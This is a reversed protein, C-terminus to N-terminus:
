LIHRDFTVSPLTIGWKEVHPKLDDMYQQRLADNGVTMLGVDVALKHARSGSRGFSDLARPFWKETYEVLQPKNEPVRAFETVKNISFARHLREEKVMQGVARDLPAYSSDGFARLYYFVVGTVYFLYVCTDFWSDIPMNLSEIKHEGTKRWLMEEVLDGRGLEQLLKSMQWARRMEENLVRAIVWRDEANPAHDLWPRLQQVAAYGSDAQISLFHCAVDLFEQTMEERTELKKIQAPGEM